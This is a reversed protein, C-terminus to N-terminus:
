IGYAKYCTQCQGPLCLNGALEQVDFENIKFDRLSDDRKQGFDARKEFCERFERYEPKNWITILDEKELTGFDKVGVKKDEGQFNRLIKGNMPVGLYTCPYVRGEVNVFMNRVPNAECVLVEELDFFQLRLKIGHKRARKSAEKMYEFYGDKEEKSRLFLPLERLEGSPLYDLNNSVIESVGLESAKDVLEPLEQFNEVTIMYSIHIRPNKRGMEKKLDRLYSINRFILDLDENVRLHRHTKPNVGAISFGVFSVGMEIIKRAIDQYLLLGNTTFSVKKAKKRAIDLLSLFDPHVLPEGWGQLHVADALPFYESIKRYLELPMDREKWRSYFVTHPCMICRSFCRSTVEVQMYGVNPKESKLKSLRSWVM